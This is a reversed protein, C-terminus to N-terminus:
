ADDGAYESLRIAGDEIAKIFLRLIEKRDVDASVHCDTTACCGYSVWFMGQYVWTEHAFGNGLVFGMDALLEREIM